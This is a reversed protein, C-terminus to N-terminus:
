HQPTVQSWSTPTLHCPGGRAVEMRRAAPDLVVTALTEWHDGFPATLDPHCCVPAGDTETHACLLAAMADSTAPAPGDTVRGRLVRERDATEPDTVVLQDGRRLDQDLFHNTHVIWGDLPPVAAVGPPSAELCRAGTQDVVTFCSSAGLPASRVVQEAQALDHATDLVRRAVAHVPVVDGGDDAGDSLHSLINFHVGVGAANLGIKGVVGRETLTIFPLDVGGHQVLLWAQSLEQHWDWTQASLPSDQRAAGLRVLTSCEGRHVVGGAALVETRANLAHVRWPEVSSARAFADIEAALDPAWSELARQTSRALAKVRPPEMGAAAFLREYTQLTTRFRAPDVTALQEGRRVPDTGTVSTHEIPHDVPGVAKVADDSTM